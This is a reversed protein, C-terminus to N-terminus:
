VVVLDLEVVDVAVLDAVDDLDIGVEDHALRGAAEESEALLPAVENRAVVHRALVLFIPVQRDVLVLDLRHVPGVGRRSRLVAALPAAALVGAIRRVGLASSTKTAVFLVDVDVLDLTLGALDDHVLADDLVRLRYLNGNPALLDVDFPM